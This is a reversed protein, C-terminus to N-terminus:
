KLLFIGFIFVLICGTCEWIEVFEGKISDKYIQFERNEQFNGFINKKEHFIQFILCLTFEYFGPILPHM